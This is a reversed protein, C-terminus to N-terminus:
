LTAQTVKAREKQLWVEKSVVIYGGKMFRGGVKVNDIVAGKPYRRVMVVKEPYNRWPEGRWGRVLGMQIIRQPFGSMILNQARMDVKPDNILARIIDERTNCASLHIRKELHKFIKTVLEDDDPYFEEM